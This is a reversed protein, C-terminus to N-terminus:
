FLGGGQERALREDALKFNKEDYEVCLCNRNTSHAAVALSGSGGFPDVILDGENTSHRILTQLLPQPKEHPHILKDPRIQPYHLVFNRRQDSAERGGRKYYLIYEMGMGWTNLDGMGPGDKQWVGIAKRSYRYDGFLTRTNTLWLELVQWSTFVYIDSDDRMKPMATDMAGSFVEWAKEPSEDNAIKRAYQKGEATKAMNSKNDVGFPPDTIISAVSGDKLKKLVDRCDGHRIVQHTM